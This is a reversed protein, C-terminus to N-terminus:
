CKGGSEMWDSFYRFVSFFQFIAKYCVLGKRKIM